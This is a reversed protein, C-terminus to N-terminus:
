TGEVKQTPRIALSILVYSLFAYFGYLLNSQSTTILESQGALGRLDGLQEALLGDFGIYAMFIAVVFVDAMSWKATKTTMFVIFRNERLPKAHLAVLSCINKTLPFLVSFLLVLFGVFIVQFSDQKMLLSVVELISKSRYFLVQDQFYISEGLLSFNIEAIRADIEIMPLTVGLTLFILGCSIILTTNIPGPAKLFALGFVLLAIIFLALNYPSQQNEYDVIRSRLEMTLSAGLPKDYKESIQNLRSYDISAFTETKYEELKKTLFNKIAERNEDSELFDLIQETFRPVQAKMQDVIGAAEMVFGQLLGQIGKPKKQTSNKEFDDILQYLLRSIRQRMEDRNTASFDLEKVKESIVSAMVEQWKDANFLGYRAKSIEILDQEIVRKDQEMQWYRYGSFLSAGLAIILLPTMLRIYASKM